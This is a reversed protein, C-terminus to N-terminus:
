SAKEENSDLEITFEYRSGDYGIKTVKPQDSLHSDLWGQVIQIMTAQNFRLENSGKMNYSM